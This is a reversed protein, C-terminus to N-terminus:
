DKSRFGGGDQGISLVTPPRLGTPPSRFGGVANATLPCACASAKTADQRVAELTLHFPARGVKQGMGSRGAPFPPFAQSNM